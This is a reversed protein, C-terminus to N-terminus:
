EAGSVALLNQMIRDHVKLYYALEADNMEDNTWADFKENMEISKELMNFYENLLQLDSPNENYKKILSCYEDYFAEYSDMAAKFEPRMGDVLENSTNSNETTEAASNNDTATESSANNDETTEPTNRNEATDAEKLKKIDEQFDRLTNEAQETDDRLLAGQMDSWFSYIDSSLDSWEDYVDSSANSWSKYEHSLAASWEEYSINNSYSDNLIGSYFYNLMNDLIGSYIGNLIDDGANVYICDFLKGFDSYKEVNTKDSSMIAEAYIISYERIRICLLKTNEYIEQYFADIKDVNKLYKDYTNIDASLQEYETMLSAITDTVDNTVIEEIENFEKANEETNTQGSKSEETNEQETNKENPSSVPINDSNGLTRKASCATLSLLLIFSLLLTKFKM